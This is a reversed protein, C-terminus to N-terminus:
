LFSLIFSYRVIPNVILVPEEDLDFNHVINIIGMEVLDIDCFEWRKNLEGFVEKFKSLTFEGGSGQFYDDVMRLYRILEKVDGVFIEKWEKMIKTLDNKRFSHEIVTNNKIHRPLVNSRKEDDPIVLDALNMQNADDNRHHRKTVDLFQESKNDQFKTLSFSPKEANRYLIKEKVDEKELIIKEVQNTSSSATAAIAPRNRNMLAAPPTKSRNTIRGCTSLSSISEEQIFLTRNSCRCLDDQIEVYDTM